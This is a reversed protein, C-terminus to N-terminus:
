WQECGDIELYLASGRMGANVAECEDKTEFPGVEWWAPPQSSGLVFFGWGVLFLGRVGRRMVRM